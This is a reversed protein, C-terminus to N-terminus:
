KAVSLKLYKEVRLLRIEFKNVRDIDAKKTLLMKLMEMENRLSIVEKKIDIPLKAKKIKKIKNNKMNLIIVFNQFLVFDSIWKSNRFLIRSRVTYVFFKM